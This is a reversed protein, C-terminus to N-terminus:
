RHREQDGDRFSCEATRIGVTRRVCRPRSHTTLFRQPGVQRHRRPSANAWGITLAAIVFLPTWALAIVVGGMTQDMLTAGLLVFGIESVGLKALAVAIIAAVIAGGLIGFSIWFQWFSNTLLHSVKGEGFNIAMGPVSDVDSADVDAMMNEIAPAFADMAYPTMEADGGLGFGFFPNADAMSSALRYPGIQRSYFSAGKVIDEIMGGYEDAAYMLLSTSAIVAIFCAFLLASKALRVGPHGSRSMRYVILGIVCIAVAYFITPSRIVFIASATLLSAAVFRAIGFRDMDALLWGCLSLGWFIGVISPESAFVTPRVAGYLQLDRATDIYNEQHIASRVVDVFPKMGFYVELTAVILMIVAVSLFLRSVTRPKLSTLGLFLGYNTVLAVYLQVLSLLRRSPAVAYPISLAFFGVTTALLLCAAIILRISLRRWELCILALSTAFAAFYPFLLRGSVSLHISLFFSLLMVVCLLIRLHTGGLHRAPTAGSLMNGKRCVSLPVPDGPCAFEYSHTTRLDTKNLVAGLLKRHMGQASALACQVTETSTKGWEVVLVYADITATSARVDIVSVLSPLDVIIYDYQRRLGEFMTRANESALFEMSEFPEAMELLPFFHMKSAGGTRIVEEAAARELALDCWGRSARPTMTRSLTRKRFDADILLVRRGARSVLRAFNAALTSKGEGELASTFGIIRSQQEPLLLDCSLRISRITEAFHSTPYKLVYSFLGSEIFESDASKNRFRVNLANFWESLALPRQNLKRIWELAGLCDIKLRETVQEPTRFTRDSLERWAAIGLGLCLGGFVAIPLVLTAKPKSKFAPPLAPSVIQGEALQFSQQQGAEAYREFFSDYLRRYTTANARLENLKAQEGIENKAQFEQVLKEADAARKQLDRLRAELWSAATAAAHSRANIRSEIYAAAVANAIRAARQPDSDTFNIKIVSSLGVRSVSMNKRLVRMAHQETTLGSISSGTFAANEALQLSKVVSTAIADSKLIEVQSDITKSDVSNDGSVTESKVARIPPKEIYLAAEATFRPTAFLLYVASLGITLCLFALILRLNRRVFATSSTVIEAAPAAPPQDVDDFLAASKDSQLM